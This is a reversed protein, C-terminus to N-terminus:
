LGFFGKLKGGIGQPNVSVSPNRHQPRVSTASTVEANGTGAQIGLELQPAVQSLPLQADDVGSPVSAEVAPQLQPAVSPVVPVPIARKKALEAKWQITSLNDHKHKKANNPNSVGKPKCAQDEKCKYTVEGTAEDKGVTMNAINRPGCAPHM